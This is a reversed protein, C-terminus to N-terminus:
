QLTANIIQMASYAIWDEKQVECVDARWSVVKRGIQIGEPDARIAQM